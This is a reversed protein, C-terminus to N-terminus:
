NACDLDPKPLNSPLPHSNSLLWIAAQEPRLAKAFHIKNDLTVETLYYNSGVGYMIQRCDEHALHSFKGVKAYGNWFLQEDFRVADETDFVDGNNAVILM